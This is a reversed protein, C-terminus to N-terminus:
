LQNDIYIPSTSFYDNFLHLCGEECNRPIHIRKRAHQKSNSGKRVRKDILKKICKHQYRIVSLENLLNEILNM